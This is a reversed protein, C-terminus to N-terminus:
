ALCTALVLQSHQYVCAHTNDSMCLCLPPSQSLLVKNCTEIVIAVAISQQLLLPHSKRSRERSYVSSQYCTRTCGVGSFLVVEIIIFLQHIYSSCPKSTYFFAKYVYNNDMWLFNITGDVGYYKYNDIMLQLNIRIQAVYLVSSLAKLKIHLQSFFHVIRIYLVNKLQSRMHLIFPALQLIINIMGTFGNYNYCSYFNYTYM